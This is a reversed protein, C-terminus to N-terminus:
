PRQPAEGSFSEDVLTQANFQDLYSRMNLILYQKVDEFSEKEGKKICEIHLEPKAFIYFDIVILM